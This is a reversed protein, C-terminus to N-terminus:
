QITEHTKIRSNKNKSENISNYKNRLERLAKSIEAEVTKVSIHLERAIENYKKGEERNMHFIKQRREPLLLLTERIQQELEKYELEELPTFTEIGANEAHRNRYDERVKAKEVQQLSKNKVSRYLYGSVSTFIQLNEREKWLVYFLDQVIEEATEPNEVWQCAYRCLPEYYSRFLTEFAEIDGDKIKKFILLNIPM